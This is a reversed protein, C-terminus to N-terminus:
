PNRRSNLLSSLISNMVYFYAEKLFIRDGDEIIMKRKLYPSFDYVDLVSVQFSDFFSHKSIGEKTRLGLLLFYDMEDEKTLIEEEVVKQSEIYHYVSKTHVGRKNEIYFAAGAGFGYYHENKWYSLNHKSEFGPKAFNSVEYHRYGKKKLYACITQYMLADVDEEVRREQQFSFKTHEELQLSYTSIHSVSLSVFFSLDEKLEELTEGPLAYMLDINIHDIGEKKLLAIKEEIVKKPVIREVKEQLRRNGSQIGLSVRNIGYKKFLAIKEECIDEINCEITYELNIDKQFLEVTQFLEELEELSLASPTGGGIYITTCVEQQYTSQIEKKLAELYKKVLNSQYFVKCFDCYPCIKRCFPIHIYIHM